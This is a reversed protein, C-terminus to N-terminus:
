FTTKSEANIEIDSSIKMSQGEQELLSFHESDNM